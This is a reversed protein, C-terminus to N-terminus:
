RAYPPNILSGGDIVITDIINWLGMSLQHIPRIISVNYLEDVYWKNWLVKHLGSDTDAGLKGGKHMWLAIGLGVLGALIVGLFVLLAPGVPSQCLLRSPSNM